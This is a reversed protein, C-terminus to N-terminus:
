KLKNLPKEISLKLENIKNQFQKDLKCEFFVKKKTTPHTFELQYAHLYQKYDTIKKNNIGYMPDNVICHEIFKMHVRIQHTRGTLLECKILAYKDNQDLVYFKTMSKKPNKANIVTFEINNKNKTRGIPADITGIKEKFPNNVLAIYFRKMEKTKIQNQLANLTKLNKAAVILGTTDRDLRHVMFIPKQIKNKNNKNIHYLLGNALTIDKIHTTPHTILNKQKNVIILDNDEYIINLKIKYPLIESKKFLFIEDDYNLEVIDNTKLLLNNKFCTKGNITVCNNLILISVKTRSINLIQSLFIDIRKKDEKVSFKYQRIM